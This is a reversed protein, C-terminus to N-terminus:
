VSCFERMFEMGLKKGEKGCYLQIVKGCIPCEINHWDKYDPTEIYLTHGCECFAASYGEMNYMGEGVSRKVIVDKCEFKM